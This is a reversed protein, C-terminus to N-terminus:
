EPNTKRFIAVINNFTALRYQNPNYQDQFTAGTSTEGYKNVTCVYTYEQNEILWPGVNTKTATPLTPRLDTRPTM